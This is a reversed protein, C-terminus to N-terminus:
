LKKIITVAREYNEREFWDDGNSIQYRVDYKGCKLCNHIYFTHKGERIRGCKCCKECDKSWDHLGIKCKFAM